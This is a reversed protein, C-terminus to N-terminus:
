CVGGSPMFIMYMVRLMNLADMHAPVLPVAVFSLRKACLTGILFCNM